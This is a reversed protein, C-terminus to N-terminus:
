QSKRAAYLQLKARDQEMASDTRVRSLTWSRWDSTDRDQEWQALLSRALERQQDPPREDIGALLAPWADRSLTTLYDLDVTSSARARALNMRAILRDPDVAHLAIAIVYASVIAGYAFSRHQERTSVISYWALLIAIWGMFATTYVRLETLGYEDVYMSMRQLASVMTTAVCAVLGLTLIRYAFRTFRTGRCLRPNSLLLVLLALAAATVLEFFGRRAYEAYSLQLREEVLAAGGFLYRLQVAIFSAYLLNLAGLPILVEWPRNSRPDSDVPERAPDPSWIFGIERVLGSLYGAVLWAIALSWFAQQLFHPYDLAFSAVIFDEFVADASMFLGGFVAVLFFAYVFGKGISAARAPDYTRRGFGSGNATEGLKSPASPRPTILEFGLIACNLVLEAACALYHEIRFSAIAATIPRLLPFLAASMLGLFAVANLVNSERWAVCLAFALVPIWFHVMRDRRGEAQSVFRGRVLSAAAAVLLVWLAAAIGPSEVRLLSNGIVGLPVALLVLVTRPVPVLEIPSANARSSRNSPM